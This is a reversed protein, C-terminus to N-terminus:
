AKYPERGISIQYERAAKNIKDSVEIAEQLTEYWWYCHENVWLYFVGNMQEIQTKHVRKLDIRVNEIRIYRDMTIKDIGM